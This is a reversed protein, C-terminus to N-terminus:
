ASKRRWKNKEKLISKLIKILEKFEHTRYFILVLSISSFFICFIIRYFYDVISSGIIIETNIWNTFVILLTLIILYKLYVVFYPMSSTNFIYKYVYYPRQWCPLLISSILTGLFIGMLGMYQVLILSAVLNIAAQILPSFKDIDYLGAATKVTNVPIRMGTLYYNIIVILIIEQPLTYEKGIWIEITPNLLNYFCISILSYILFGIFNIMKFIEIKKEDSATAILNGMSATISTFFLTVFTTISSIILLYNSYIGVISLSIFASMILNDTGNISFDGIKHFIMAKVNKTITGLDSESLKGINKEKLFPYIKMVKANVFLTQIILMLTNVLLYLIFDELSILILVQATVSLVNFLVYTTSLMYEKQSAVLLVVKYNIFYPIVTNIIYMFFILELNNIGNADKIFFDIFLMLILGLVLVLIGIYRYVKKYFNMLIKMQEINNNAIPKYLSFTIATGIGLEAISLMSIVNLMLGNIGLYTIGLVNIFVTRSIFNLILSVLKIGIGTTFNLISNKTRM